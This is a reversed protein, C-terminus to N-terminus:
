LGAHIKICISWGFSIPFQISPIKVVMCVPVRVTGDEFEFRSKEMEVVAGSFTNSNNHDLTACLIVRQLTFKRDNDIINVTTLDRFFEGRRMVLSTYLPILHQFMLLVMEELEVTLDDNTVLTVEASSNGSLTQDILEFDTIELIYFLFLSFTCLFFPLSLTNPLLSTFLLLLIYFSYVQYSYINYMCM